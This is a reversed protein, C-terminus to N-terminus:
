LDAGRATARRARMKNLVEESVLLELRAWFSPWNISGSM